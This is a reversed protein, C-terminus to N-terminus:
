LPNFPSLKVKGFHGKRGIEDTIDRLSSRVRPVQACVTIPVGPVDHGPSEGKSVFFHKAPIKPGSLTRLSGVIYGRM